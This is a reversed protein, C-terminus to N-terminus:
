RQYDKSKYCLGEIDVAEPFLHQSLRQCNLCLASEKKPYYILCLFSINQSMYKGWIHSEFFLVILCEPM